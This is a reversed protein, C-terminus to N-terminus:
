YGTLQRVAPLGAFVALAKHYENELEVLRDEAEYLVKMYMFYTAVSIEGASLAKDTYKTGGGSSILERIESFSKQLAM